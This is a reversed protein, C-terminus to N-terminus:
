DFEVTRNKNSLMALCILQPKRGYSINLGNLRDRHITKSKDKKFHHKIGPSWFRNKVRPTKM